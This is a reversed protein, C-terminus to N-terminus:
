INWTFISFSKSHCVIDEVYALAYDCTEPELTTQLARVFAAM